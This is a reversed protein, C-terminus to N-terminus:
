LRVVLFRFTGAAHTLSGATTNEFGLFVEDNDKVRANVLACANGSGPGTVFLLDTTKLAIRKPLTSSNNGFSVTFAQEAFVNAATAAPTLSATFTFLAHNDKSVNTGLM